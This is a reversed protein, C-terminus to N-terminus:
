TTPQPLAFFFSDLKLQIDHFINFNSDTKQSFLIKWLWENEQCRIMMQRRKVNKLNNKTM